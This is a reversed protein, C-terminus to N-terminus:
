ALLVTAGMTRRGELERHAAAADSLALRQGIHSKVEGSALRAFLDAARTALEDRSKIYDFLMPRTAFLSGGSALDSFKFDAIMGSSQGFHVFMGRLKLCKLSGRWTDKGVSDYVADCGRGGTIEKVRAAFDERRYDIVHSYGNAKALATKEPSGATGISIAGLAKLWQGMLLGVGGAAAHVLVTDGRKVPFSSTLLFQATLGKLMVSAAVDFAISDPLKVLRDAPVVRQTRYAGLPMTYAVRDGSKLDTVGAGVDAVVGAAEAGPILPTTPWPYLGSRFYTDIFNVGIAHQEIRVEGAGPAATSLSTWQLAEPGGASQVVIGMDQRAQAM